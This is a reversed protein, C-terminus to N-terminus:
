GPDGWITTIIISDGGSFGWKKLNLFPSPFEKIFTCQKPNTIYHRMLVNTKPPTHRQHADEVMELWRWRWWGNSAGLDM